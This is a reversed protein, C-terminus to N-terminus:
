LWSEWKKRKKKKKRIVTEWKKSKIVYFSRIFRSRLMAVSRYFLSWVYVSPGRIFGSRLM